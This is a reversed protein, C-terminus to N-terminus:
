LSPPKGYTVYCGDLLTVYCGDLISMPLGGGIFMCDKQTYINSLVPSYKLWFYDPKTTIALATCPPALMIRM